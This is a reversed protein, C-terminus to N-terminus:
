AKNFDALGPRLQAGAPMTLATFVLAAGVIAGTMRYTTM